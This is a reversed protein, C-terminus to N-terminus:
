WPKTPTEDIERKKVGILASARKLLEGARM